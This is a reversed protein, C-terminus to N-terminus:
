EDANNDEFAQLGINFRSLYEEQTLNTGPMPPPIKGDRISGLYKRTGQRGAFHVLAMIEEETFVFKDKLQPKYENYLEYADEEYNNIRIDMIAEQADKSLAFEDRTNIGYESRLQDEHQKYLIQYAGTASSLPNKAGYNFRGSNEPQVIGRKFQQYNIEHLWPKPEDKKRPPPQKLAPEKVNKTLAKAIFPYLSIPIM